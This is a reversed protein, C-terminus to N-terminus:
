QWGLLDRIDLLSKEIEQLQKKYEESDKYEVQLGSEAQKAVQEQNKIAKEFATSLINLKEADLGKPAAFGRAAFSTVGEYGSEKLTPVDPLMPSKEESMVALVKLEGDKYLNIVDVVNAFLVDVHGGLAMTVEEASGSTHVPIFKTGFAKNLKLAAIHDDSGPGTTTMKLENTKAYELLEQITKFRTEDKRISITGPDTVHSAIMTFSDLTEQRKLKPDLYGTMLNPTGLYGITYGDPKSQVLEQWGVWGGAGPKNEVVVPVGLEKELYPTLIRAGTDMGGGAAFSVILKIPKDPYKEGVAATKETDKAAADKAPANSGAGCATIFISLALVSILSSFKKM